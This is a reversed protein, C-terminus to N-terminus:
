RKRFQRAKRAKKLGYKKREKVRPDRTLVGQSKLPERFSSNVELLARSIGLICADVQSAKGGGLVTIKANFKSNLSLHTLPKQMDQVDYMSGFYDQPELNNILITGNGEFLWVKAISCKRKGTGYYSINPVKLVQVKKQKSEKSM